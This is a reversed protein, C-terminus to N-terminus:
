LRATHAASAPALLVVDPKLRGAAAIPEGPESMVEIEDSEELQSILSPAAGVVMVRLPVSGDSSMRGRRHGTTASCLASSARTPVFIGSRFWLSAVAWVRRHGRRLADPAM